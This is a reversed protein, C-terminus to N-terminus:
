RKGLLGGLMGLLADANAPAQQPAAGKPTMQDVLVPLIQALLGPADDRAVGAKAAIRDMGATGFVQEIQSPAVPQNAGSGVWSQAVEGMGAQQFKALMGALGGHKNGASLMSAAVQMLQPNQMAIQAIQGMGGANGSGGTLASVLNNLLSM